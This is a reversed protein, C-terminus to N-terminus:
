RGEMPRLRDVACSVNRRGGHAGRLRLRAGVRAVRVPVVVMVVIRVEGRLVLLISTHADGSNSEIDVQAHGHALTDAAVDEVALTLSLMVCCGADGYALLIFCKDGIGDV